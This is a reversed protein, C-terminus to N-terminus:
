GRWLSKRKLFLFNFFIHWLIAAFLLSKKNKKVADYAMSATGIFADNIISVLLRDFIKQLRLSM